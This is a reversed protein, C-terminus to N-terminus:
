GEGKVRGEIFMADGYSFFRYRRAVAEAYLALLRERGTLASVLFLLTSRPLHFNTVLADVARFAYGPAIMLESVGPGAEVRGTAAAATELTRTTTTGVAVIRRGAARAANIAGATEEPVHYSESHMKHDAIHDAKVPLFTGAGVHLTTRLVTVGMSEITALLEPTFHLGATPAAVSGKERAYVTQYRERDEPRSGREGRRALIYPPLPMAGHAELLDDLSRDGRFAVRKEGDGCDEMVETTFGEAIDIVTGPRLKKGPRALCIWETDAGPAAPELLLLECAGGGPRRAGFLRAPIVRSDNLVLVDDPHLFDTIDRFHAHRAPAAPDRPVFLLRSGDREACPQDAILEDPLDYDFDSLRM